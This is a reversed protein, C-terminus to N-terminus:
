QKVICDFLKEDYGGHKNLRSSIFGVRMGNALGATPCSEGSKRSIFQEFVSLQQVYGFLRDKQEQVKARM